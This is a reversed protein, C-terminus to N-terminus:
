LGFFREANEVAPNNIVFSIEIIKNRAHNRKCRLGICFDVSPRQHRVM